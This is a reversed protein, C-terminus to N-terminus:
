KTWKNILNEFLRNNRTAFRSENLKKEKEPTDVNSGEGRAKADAAVDGRSVTKPDAGPLDGKEDDDPDIVGDGLDEQVNNEEMYSPPLDDIYRRPQMDAPVGQNQQSSPKPALSGEDELAAAMDRLQEPTVQGDALLASLQKLINAQKEDRALKEVSEPVTKVVAKDGVPVDSNLMALVKELEPNGTAARRGYAVLKDDDGTIMSEFSAIRKKLTEIRRATTPDTAGRLELKDLQAQRANMKSTVITKLKELGQSHVEPSGMAVKGSMAGADSDFGTTQKVTNHIMDEFEGSQIAEIDSASATGVEPESSPITLKQGVGIRNVNKIGNAAAIATVSTGFKRAIKSLNDGPAVSYTEETLIKRITEKVFRKTTKRTMTKNEKLSTSEAIKMIIYKDKNSLSDEWDRFCMNGQLYAEKEMNRMHENNQAYGTGMEGCKESSLDGRLNQTHHVLEHAYSRLIDKPHRKHTFLTVSKEQPDYHATKGLMKQSNDSDSRLFLRPPHQFGMRKKAFITLQGILPKLQNNM